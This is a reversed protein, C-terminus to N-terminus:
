RRVSDFSQRSSHDPPPTYSLPSSKPQLHEPGPGKRRRAGEMRVLLALSLMLVGYILLMSQVSMLPVGHHLKPCSGAIWLTCM